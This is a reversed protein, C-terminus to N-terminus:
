KESGRRRAGRSPKAGFRYNSLMAELDGRRVLVVRGPLKTAPLIRRTIWKRVTNEHVSLLEAVQAPRLATRCNLPIEEKPSIPTEMPIFYGM